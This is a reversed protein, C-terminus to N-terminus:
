LNYIDVRDEFLGHDVLVPEVISWIINSSLDYGQFQISENLKLMTQMAMSKTGKFHTSKNKALWAEPNGIEKKFVFPATTSPFFLWSPKFAGIFHLQM